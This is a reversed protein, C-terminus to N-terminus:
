SGYVGGGTNGIAGDMVILVEDALLQFFAMDQSSVIITKRAAALARLETALIQTNESDLASTPEDLLLVQPDFCLARALALRQQQGGSLRVPYRDVLDVIGLTELVIKAKAVAQGRPVKLVTCLPEACNELVTLQPFFNYQQFVFGIAQVRQVDTLKKIDVGDAFIVGGYDQRLQAICRLISTKGAGSKGVLFTIKGPTFAFSVKKLIPVNSTADVLLLNELKIM